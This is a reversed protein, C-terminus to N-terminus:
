QGHRMCERLSRISRDLIDELQGNSIVLTAGYPTPVRELCGAHSLAVVAKRCTETSMELALFRALNSQDIAGKRDRWNQMLRQMVDASFIAREIREPKLRLHRAHAKSGALSELEQNHQIAVARLDEASEVASERLRYFFQAIAQSADSNLMSIVGIDSYNARELLADVFTQRYERLCDLIKVGKAAHPLDILEMYM